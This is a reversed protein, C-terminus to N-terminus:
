NNDNNSDSVFSGLSERVQQNAHELTAERVQALQNAVSSDYVTDGVKVIMGGIIQPDKKVLLIVEKGLMAKLKEQVASELHSPLDDAVTIAAEVRGKMENFLAKAQQNIARLCDLRHHNTLVKLFKILTADGRGSLTSDILRHKEEPTIRPSQLADALKPIGDLVDVVFSDLQELVEDTNGAKEAAAILSKAYVGAIYQQDTNIGESQEQNQDTM